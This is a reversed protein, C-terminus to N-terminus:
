GSANAEPVVPLWGQTFALMYLGVRLLVLLAFAWWGVHADPIFRPLLARTPVLVPALVRTFFRYVFNGQVNGGAILFLLARGVLTWMMLALIFNLLAYM